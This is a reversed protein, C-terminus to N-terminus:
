HSKNIGSYKSNGSKQKRESIKDEEEFRENKQRCGVSMTTYLFLVYGQGVYFNASFMMFLAVISNAFLPLIDIFFNQVLRTLSEVGRDIRTQLKIPQNNYSSYFALKYTLIKEIVKQALDRSIFIRLKEGYYKQGFQIFSNIIEKGILIITIM